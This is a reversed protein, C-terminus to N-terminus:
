RTLAQIAADVGMFLAIGLLVVAFVRRLTTTSVKGALRKGDWTGLLATAAFPGILAWDLLAVDGLRAALAAGANVSIVLLSTGVATRMPVSLVGVLAPVTLFGGGVGLFGTVTGVGAGLGVARVPRPHDTTTTPSRRLMSVAAMAAVLSFAGTLAAAPVHRTLAGAAAAPAMGAVAFLAGLRWRVTGSRAHATLAAVSTLVLVLLSATTARDPTFGMLYILAPVALVGGGGGLAGTSLGVVAGAVLALVVPTM